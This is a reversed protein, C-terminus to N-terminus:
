TLPILGASCFELCIIAQKQHHLNHQSKHTTQNRLGVSVITLSAGVDGLPQAIM